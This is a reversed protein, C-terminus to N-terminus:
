SFILIVMVPTQSMMHEEQSKQELANPKLSSNRWKKRLLVMVKVLRAISSTGTHIDAIQKNGECMPCVHLTQGEKEVTSVDETESEENNSNSVQVLGCNSLLFALSLFAYHAKRM